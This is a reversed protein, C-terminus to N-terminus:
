NLFQKQFTVTEPTGNEAPNAIYVNSLSITNENTKKVMHERPEDAGPVLLLLKNGSVTYTYAASIGDQRTIVVNNGEFELTRLNVTPKTETWTGQLFNNNVVADDDSCSIFAIGLSLFLFIKKMATKNKAFTCHAPLVPM